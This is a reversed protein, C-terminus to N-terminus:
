ILMMYGSLYAGHQFRRRGAAPAHLGALPPPRAVHRRLWPPCLCGLAPAPDQLATTYEQPLLFLHLYILGLVLVRASSGPNDSCSGAPVCTLPWPSLCHLSIGVSLAFLPTLLFSVGFTKRKGKKYM